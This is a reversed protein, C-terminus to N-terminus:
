QSLRRELEKILNIYKEHVGEGMEEKEVVEFRRLLGEKEDESLLRGGM